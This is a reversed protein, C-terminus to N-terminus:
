WTGTLSRPSQGLTHAVPAETNLAVLNAAPVEAPVLDVAFSDQNVVLPLDYNRDFIEGRQAPIPLERLTVARARRRYEWGRVIQLFFLQGVLFLVTLSIVSGLVYARVKVQLRSQGSSSREASM